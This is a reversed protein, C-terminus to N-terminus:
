PNIWWEWDVGNKSEENRTFAKYYVNSNHESVNYLIWDTLSEEKVFPQKKLWNYCYESADHFVM